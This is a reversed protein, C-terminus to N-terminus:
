ILALIFFSRFVFEICLLEGFIIGWFLFLSNRLILKYLLVIIFILIFLLDTLIIIFLIFHVKVLIFIFFNNFRQLRKIKRRNLQLIELFIKIILVRVYLFHRLWFNFLIPFLKLNFNSSFINRFRDNTKSM